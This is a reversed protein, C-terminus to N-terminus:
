QGEIWAHPHLGFDTSRPGPGKEMSRVEDSTIDENARM